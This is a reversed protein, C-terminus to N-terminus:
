YGLMARQVSEVVSSSYRLARRIYLELEGDASPVSSEFRWYEEQDAALDPAQGALRQLKLMRFKQKDNTVGRAYLLADISLGVTERARLAACQKHGSAMMGVTDDFADDVRRIANEVLHMRFHRANFIQRLEMFAANNSISVGNLIRHIFESEWYELYHLTHHEASDVPAAALKQSLGRIASLTWIEVDFRREDLVVGYVAHDRDARTVPLEPTIENVAVFLDLDSSINGLGEVLSGGMWATLISEGPLGNLVDCAVAALEARSLSNLANM